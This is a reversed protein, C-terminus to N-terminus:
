AHPTVAEEVATLLDSLLVLENQIATLGDFERGVSEIERVIQQLEEFSGDIVRDL